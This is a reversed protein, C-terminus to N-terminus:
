FVIKIEDSVIYAERGLLPLKKKLDRMFAVAEENTQFDGVRLRWVPSKYIIYTAVEPFIERIERGKSIAEEKSQSQNGSFAQIRYGQVKIYSENPVVTESSPTGILTNISSPECDITITGGSHTQRTLEDVITSQTQASAILGTSLWASFFFLRLNM